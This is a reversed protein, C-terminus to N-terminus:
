SGVHQAHCDFCRTASQAEKTTLSASPVGMKQDHELKLQKKLTQEMWDKNFEMWCTRQDQGRGAVLHFPGARRRGLRSPRRRATRCQTKQPQQQQMAKTLLAARPLLRKRASPARYTWELDALPLLKGARSIDLTERSGSPGAVNADPIADEASATPATPDGGVKGSKAREEREREQTELARDLEQALNQQLYQQIEQETAEDVVKELAPDIVDIEGGEAERAM